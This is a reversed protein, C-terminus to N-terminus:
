EDELFGELVIGNRISEFLNSAIKNKSFIHLSVQVNERYGFNKIRCFEVIDYDKKDFSQVAIDLDSTEIDDGKRYSGFLVVAKYAGFKSKIEELIGSEYILGLNYVIKRTQNYKHSKNCKLLWSKGATKKFLFEDLILKNVIKNANIKSVKAKKAVENLQFTKDPFSFFLGLVKIYTDRIKLKAGEIALNDKKAM